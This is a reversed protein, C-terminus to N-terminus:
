LTNPLSVIVINLESNEIFESITREILRWPIGAIGAGIKPIGLTCQKYNFFFEVESLCCELDILFKEHDKVRGPNLQTYFNFIFGKGEIDAISVEGLMIYPTLAHFSSFKEDVEKAEPYRKAISAAIGAGMIGRCNCGHAIADFQGEDFMDLLNGEKHTLTGM